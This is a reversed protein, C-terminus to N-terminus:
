KMYKSIMMKIAPNSLMASLKKPDNTLEQFKKKQEDTMKSAMENIKKNELMKKLEDPSKGLKQSALTLLEEMKEGKINFSNDM